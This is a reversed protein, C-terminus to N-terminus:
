VNLLEPDWKDLTFSRIKSIHVGMSRHIGSCEICLLVGWNLSAWDPKETGCDACVRNAECVNWVQHLNSDTEGIHSNTVSVSNGKVPESISSFQHSNISAAIANQIVNVWEHM